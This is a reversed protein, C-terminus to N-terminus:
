KLFAMAANLFPEFLHKISITELVKGDPSLKKVVDVWATIEEGNYDFKRANLDFSLLEGSPLEAVDHHGNVKATWILDGSPSMKSVSRVQVTAFLNGEDDLRAMHVGEDTPDPVEWKKVLTGELDILKVMNSYRSNYLTHGPYAKSKDLTLVGQERLTEFAVLRSNQYFLFALGGLVIAAAFILAPRKSEKAM